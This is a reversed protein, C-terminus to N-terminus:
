FERSFNIELLRFINRAALCILQLCVCFFFNFQFFGRCIINIKSANLLCFSILINSRFVFPKKRSSIRWIILLWYNHIANPTFHKWWSIIRNCSKESTIFDILFSDMMSPKQNNKEPQNVDMTSWWWWLSIVFAFRCLARPKLRTDNKFTM